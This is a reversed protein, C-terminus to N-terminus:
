RSVRVGHAACALTPLSFKM